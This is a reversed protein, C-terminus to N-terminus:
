DGRMLQSLREASDMATDFVTVITVTDGDFEYFLRYRDVIVQRLPPPYDSIVRGM